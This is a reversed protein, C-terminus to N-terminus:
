QVNRRQKKSWQLGKKCAFCYFHRLSYRVQRLIFFGASAPCFPIHFFLLPAAARLFRGVLRPKAFYLPFFFRRPRSGCANKRRPCVFAAGRQCSRRAANNQRGCGYAPRRVTKNAKRLATKRRRGVSRPAKRRKARPSSCKWWFCGTKPTSPSAEATSKWWINSVWCAM